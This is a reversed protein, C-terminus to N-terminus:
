WPLISFIGRSSVPAFRDANLGEAFIEAWITVIERPSSTVTVKNLDIIRTPPFKRDGLTAVLKGSEGDYVRAAFAVHPDSVANFALSSGPIPVLMIGAKSIPHSFELETIAIDFVLAHPEVQDVVAITGNKYKTVKQILQQKFFEALAAAEKKYQKESTMFTSVSAKWAGEPLKDATVTRFYVKTYYGAPLEPDIWAHNFPLKDDAQTVDQDELFTKSIPATRDKLACGSLAVTLALAVSCPTAFKSLVSRVLGAMADGKDIRKQCCGVSGRAGPCCIRSHLTYCKCPNQPLLSGLLLM